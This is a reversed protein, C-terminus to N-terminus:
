INEELRALRTELDALTAFEVQAKVLGALREADALLLEGTSVAELIAAMAAGPEHPLEIEVPRDGPRRPPLLRDLCLRLAVGDGELALDIAKRALAEAEHDLLAEAAVTARNRAGKPRGPNGTAFTGSPTRGATDGGNKRATATM